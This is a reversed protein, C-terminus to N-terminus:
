AEWEDSGFPSLDGGGGEYYSKDLGRVSFFEGIQENILQSLSPIEPEDSVTQTPNGGTIQQLITQAANIGPSSGLPSSISM